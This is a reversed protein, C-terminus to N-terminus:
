AGGRDYQPNSKSPPADGAAARADGDPHSEALLISKKRQRQMVAALESVPQAHCVAPTKQQAKFVFLERPKQSEQVQALQDRAQRRKQEARDEPTM